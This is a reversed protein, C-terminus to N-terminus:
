KMIHQQIFQVNQVYGPRAPLSSSPQQHLEVRDVQGHCSGSGSGSGSRTATNARSSVAYRAETNRQGSGHLPARRGGGAARGGSAAPVDPKITDGTSRCQVVDAAIAASCSRCVRRRRRCVHRAILQAWPSRARAVAPRVLSRNM